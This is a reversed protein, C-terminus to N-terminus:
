TQESAEEAVLPAARRTSPPTTRAANQDRSAPAVGAEKDLPEDNDPVNNSRRPSRFIRPIPVQNPCAAARHQYGM